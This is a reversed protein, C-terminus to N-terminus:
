PQLKSVLSQIHLANNGESNHKNSEKLESSLSIWGLLVFSLPTLFILSNKGTPSFPEPVLTDLTDKSFYALICFISILLKFIKILQCERLVINSNKFSKMWWRTNPVNKGGTFCNGVIEPVSNVWVSAILTRPGDRDSPSRKWEKREQYPLARSEAPSSGLPVSEGQANPCICVLARELTFHAHYFSFFLDEPAKSPKM